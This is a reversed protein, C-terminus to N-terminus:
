SCCSAVQWALGQLAPQPNALAPFPAQAQSCGHWCLQSQTRALWCVLLVKSEFCSAASGGSTSSVWQKAQKQTTCLSRADSDAVATLQCAVMLRCAVVYSHPSSGPAGHPCVWSVFNMACPLFSKMRCTLHRAMASPRCVTMSPSARWWVATPQCSEPAGLPLLSARWGPPMRVCWLACCAAHVAKLTPPLTASCLTPGPPWWAYAARCLSVYAKSPCGAASLCTPAYKPPPPLVKAGKARARPGVAVASSHTLADAAAVARPRWVTPPFLVPRRGRLQPLPAALRATSPPCRPPAPLPPQPASTAFSQSM